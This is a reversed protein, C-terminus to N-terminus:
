TYDTVIWIKDKNESGPITTGDGYALSTFKINGVMEYTKLSHKEPDIIYLAFIFPCRLTSCGHCFGKTVRWHMQYRGIKRGPKEM